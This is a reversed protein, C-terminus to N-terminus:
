GSQERLRQLTAERVPGTQAQVLLFAAERLHRQAPASLEMASGGTAVVLASASRIGLELAHARIALRDEVQELPPVHDILAYAQSRLGMAEDALDEALRAATDDGRREAVQALRRVVEAQLGFLSASTDATKARDAALWDDYPRVAAIDVDAVFFADLDFTVTSTAQMAALRMPASSTLGGGDRAPVLTMVAQGDASLGCLLVVDCLGWSTMWGVHGDLQWGGEVRTALVAPPGPRRLHAVAVGALVEGTCLPGLLRERLPENDSGALVALPMAHQTLVFWTALDAGALVEVVERVVRPPAGGGGYAPPGALGLLGARALADLHSRPVGEVDVREASPRLLEDALREALLVPSTTTTM